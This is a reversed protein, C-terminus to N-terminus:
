RFVYVCVYMYAFIHLYVWMRVCIYILPSFGAMRLVPQASNAGYCGYIARVKVMQNM